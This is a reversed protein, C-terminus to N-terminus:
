AARTASSGDQRGPALIKRGQLGAETLLLPVAWCFWSAAALQEALTGVGAARLISWFLRFIVFAFTVV